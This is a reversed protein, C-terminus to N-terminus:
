PTPNLPWVLVATDDGGSALRRGGPFFAVSWTIGGSGKFAARLRGSRVRWVRVGSADSATALSRGDPSFALDRVTEYHYTWRRVREGSVRDILDIHDFESDASHVALLRGDPSFTVGRVLVGEYGPLSRLLRGTRAGWVRV